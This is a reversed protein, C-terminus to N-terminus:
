RRLGRLPTSHRADFEAERDARVRDSMRANETTLEKLHLRLQDLESLSAEVEASRQRRQNTEHALESRLEHLKTRKAGVREIEQVSPREAAAETQVKRLQNEAEVRHHRLRLLEDELSASASQHWAIDALEASYHRLADELTALEANARALEAELRRRDSEWAARESESRTDAERTGRFNAARGRWTALEVELRQRESELQELELREVDAACSLCARDAEALEAEAVRARLRGCDRDLGLLERHQHLTLDFLRGPDNRLTKQV